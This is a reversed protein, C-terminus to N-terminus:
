IFEEEILSIIDDVNSQYKELTSVITEVFINVLVISIFISLSSLIPISETRVALIYLTNFGLIMAFVVLCILICIKESKNDIATSLYHCQRKDSKLVQLPITAGETWQRKSLNRDKVYSTIKEGMISYTVQLIIQENIIFYKSPSVFVKTVEGMVKGSNHKWDRFRINKFGRLRFYLIVLITITFTANLVVLTMSKYLDKPIYSVILQFSNLISDVVNSLEIVGTM